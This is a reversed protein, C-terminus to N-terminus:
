KNSRRLSSSASSSASMRPLMERSSFAKASRSIVFAGVRM